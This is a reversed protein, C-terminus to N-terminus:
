VKAGIGSIKPYKRVYYCVIITGLLISLLQKFDDSQYKFNLVPFLVYKFLDMLIHNHMLKM